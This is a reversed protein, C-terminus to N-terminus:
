SNTEKYVQDLVSKFYEPSQAGSVTYKDDIIFFPVSTIQLNSAMERDNIVAEKLSGDTLQKNLDELNFGLEVAIELLRVEDGIDLGHGFYDKYFREIFLDGQGKSQAYKTMMHAFETNNPKLIDFNYNLGVESASQIIKDNNTKADEYSINYKDAIIQHIDKDGFDARNATPNLQYSKHVIEVDDKHEFQSLGLQFKREGMYCYPCLYDFWIEVKM